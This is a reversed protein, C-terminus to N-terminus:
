QGENPIPTGQCDCGHECGKSENNSYTRCMWPREDYITCLHTEEDWHRCSYYKIKDDPEKSVGFQAARARTREATLPQIMGLITLAELADGPHHSFGAIEDPSSSVPFAVCCLGYCGSM